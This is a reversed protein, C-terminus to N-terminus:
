GEGKVFVRHKAPPHKPFFFFFTTRQHPTRKTMKNGPDTRMAPSGGRDAPYAIDNQLLRCATKTTYCDSIAKKKSKIHAFTLLGWNFGRRLCFYFAVKVLLTKVKM